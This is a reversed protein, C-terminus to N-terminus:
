NEKIEPPDIKVAPKYPAELMALVGAATIKERFWSNGSYLHRQRLEYQLLGEILRIVSEVQAQTEGKDAGAKYVRVKWLLVNPYDKLSEKKLHDLSKNLRQCEESKESFHYRLSNVGGVQQFFQQEQDCLSEIFEDSPMGLNQVLLHLYDNQWSVKDRHTLIFNSKTYAEFISVGLAWLDISEDIKVNYSVSFVLEPAWYRRTGVPPDNNFAMADLKRASGFDAIVAQSTSPIFFLNSPKIDLHVYKKESHLIRLAELVQTCMLSIKESSFTHPSNEVMFEDYLDKCPILDTIIAVQKTMTTLFHGHYQVIYPMGKLAKLIEAERLASKTNTSLKIAVFKKQPTWAEYVTGNTGSAFEKARYVQKSNLPIIEVIPAEKSARSFSVVAM